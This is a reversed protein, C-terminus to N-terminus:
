LLLKWLLTATMVMSFLGGAVIGEYGKGSKMPSIRFRHKSFPYLIPLGGKTMYDLLLHGACGIIFGYLIPLGYTMYGYHELLYKIGYYLGIYLLPAHILGRHGFMKNVTRSILPAKSGLMSKHNDMDPFLSGFICSAMLLCGQPLENGYLVGASLVATGLGFSLHTKGNM